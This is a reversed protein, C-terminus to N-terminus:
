TIPTEPLEAYHTVNDLPFDVESNAAVRWWERWWEGHPQCWCTAIAFGDNKDFVLYNKNVVKPCESIPKLIM